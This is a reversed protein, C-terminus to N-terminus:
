SEYKGVKRVKMRLFVKMGDRDAPTELADMIDVRGM